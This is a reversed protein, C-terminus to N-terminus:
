EPEIKEATMKLEWSIDIKMPSELYLLSTVDSANFVVPM